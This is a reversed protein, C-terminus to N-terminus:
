TRSERKGRSGVCGRLWQWVEALACSLTLMLFVVMLHQIFSNQLSLKEAVSATLSESVRLTLMHLGMIYLTKEGIYHFLKVERFAGALFYMGVISLLASIFYFEGRIASINGGLMYRWGLVMLLVGVAASFPLKRGAVVFGFAYGALLFVLAAPLVNIHFVPRGPLLTQFPVTVLALGACAAAKLVPHLYRVMCEFLISAIFYLQLYWLPFNNSYDSLWHGGLVLGKLQDVGFQALHGTALWSSLNGYLVVSVFWLVVYPILSSRLKGVFFRGWPKTKGGYRLFGSVFFFLPMHFSYIWKNFPSYTHGMIVLIIGWAKVVDITKNRM